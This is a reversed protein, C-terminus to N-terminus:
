GEGQCIYASFLGNHVDIQKTQYYIPDGGSELVYFSFTLDKKGNFPAGTEQDALRGQYHIYLPFSSALCLSAISLFVVTVLLIAKVASYLKIMASIGKM